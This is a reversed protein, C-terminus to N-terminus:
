TWKTTKTPIHRVSGTGQVRVTSVLCIILAVVVHYPIELVGSTNRLHSTAVTYVVPTLPNQVTPVPDYSTKANGTEDQLVAYSAPGGRHVSLKATKRVNYTRLITRHAERDLVQIGHTDGVTLAMTVAIPLVHVKPSPYSFSPDFGSRVTGKLTPKKM